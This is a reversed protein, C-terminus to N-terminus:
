DSFSLIFRLLAESRIEKAEEAALVHYKSLPTLRLIRRIVIVAKKDIHNLEANELSDTVYGMHITLLTLAATIILAALM